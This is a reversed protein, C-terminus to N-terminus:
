SKVQIIPKTDLKESIAECSPRLLIDVWAFGLKLIAGLGNRISFDAAIVENLSLANGNM